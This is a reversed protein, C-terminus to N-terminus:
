KPDHNGPDTMGQSFWHSALPLLWPPLPFPCFHEVGMVEAAASSKMGSELGHSPQNPPNHDSAASHYCSHATGPWKWYHRPWQWRLDCCGLDTMKHSPWCSSIPPPWLALPFLWFCGAEMVAVGMAAALKMASGPSQSALCHYNESHANRAMKVLM